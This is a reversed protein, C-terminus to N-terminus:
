RWLYLFLQSLEFPLSTVFISLWNGFKLTSFTKKTRKKDGLFTVKVQSLNYMYTSNTQAHESHMHITITIKKLIFWKEFDKQTTFIFFHQNRLIQSEIETNRIEFRELKLYEEM